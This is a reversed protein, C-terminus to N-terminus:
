ISDLAQQVVHWFLPYPDHFNVILKKKLIPSIKLAFITEHNIGAKRFLATIM